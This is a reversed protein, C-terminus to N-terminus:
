NESEERLTEVDVGLVKSVIHIATDYFPEFEDQPMSEFAISKPMMVIFDDGIAKKLQEPLMEWLKPAVKALFSLRVQVPTSHGAAVKITNLLGETTMEGNPWNDVAINLLAFLKRHHNINRPRRPDILVNQNLKTKGLWEEADKCAPVLCERGNIIAKTWTHKSM